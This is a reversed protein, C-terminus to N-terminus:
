REQVGSSAPGSQSYEGRGPSAMSSVRAINLLIGAAALGTVLSSGGSSIFPLVDGTFPTTATNVSIHLIAGSTVWTVIGVALLRGYVDVANWAIRLGRWTWLAYMALILLTGVFGTEEGIISIICDSHPAYIAFKQQSQGLGVGFLGGLNLAALTQVVQFGEDLSDSLPNDLWTQIRQWREVAPDLKVVKILFFSILTLAVLGVLGGIALQKTEAGAVFFMVMATVILLCATSFDPQVMILGAIGGLLLAFPVLGLGVSRLDAGKSALWVAIYIMAGLKALESLQISNTKAVLYRGLSGPTLVTVLLILLLMGVTGALILRAHRQYLHYDIRSCIFMLVLGIGAFVAQRKVFYTPQGEYAGDEVLSFGYSASYVMVLGILLFGFVVLVLGWDTRGLRSGPRPRSAGVRSDLIRNTGADM